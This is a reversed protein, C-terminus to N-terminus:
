LAEAEGFGVPTAPGYLFPPFAPFYQVFVCCGSQNAVFLNDHNVEDPNESREKTESCWRAFM